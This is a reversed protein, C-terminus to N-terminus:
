RGSSGFGDTGRQDYQASFEAVLAFDADYYKHLVIQAIRDGIKVEYPEDSMSVLAVVVEGTYTADIIGRHPNIGAKFLSSRGEITYYFGEPASIQIGTHVTTVSHPKLVVNEVAHIDYGADTDRKRYPLKADSHIFKTELRVIIKNTRKLTDLVQSM